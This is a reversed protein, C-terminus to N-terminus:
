QELHTLGFDDIIFLSAKSIREFLKVISGEIRTIKRKVLLKQTNFYIVKNGQVCAQHGLAFAIFSKDCGTAGLAM